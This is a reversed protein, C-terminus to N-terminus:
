FPIDDEQTRSGSGGGRQQQDRGDLMLMENMVVKATRRTVGERDTYEDYRMEGAVYLKSGKAVYQACIDALNRWAEVRHWQTDQQTEGNNDKWVRNTALSFSVVAVGSQTHRLDPDQGVRGILLIKNLGREPM